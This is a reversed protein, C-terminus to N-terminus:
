LINGINFNPLDEDSEESDSEVVHELPSYSISADSTESPEQVVPDRRGQSVVVESHSSEKLDAGWTADGIDKVKPVTDLNVLPLDDGETYSHPSCTTDDMAASVVEQSRPSEMCDIKSRANSLKEDEPPTSLDIYPLDDGGISSNRSGTPHLLTNKSCDMELVAPKCANSTGSM